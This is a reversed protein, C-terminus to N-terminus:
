YFLAVYILDVTGALIALFVAIAAVFFVVPVLLLSGVGMGPHGTTLYFVSAGACAIV